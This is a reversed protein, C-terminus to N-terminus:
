EISQRLVVCDRFNGPLYPNFGVAQTRDILFFGRYRINTGDLVGLELGLIDYAGAPNSTALLPNGQQTVEFFGVTIWVAFQHTRVTTLNMVRQLWETRFYPHDRQDPLHPSGSTDTGTDNGGSGLTETVFKTVPTGSSSDVYTVKPATLDINPNALNPAGVMNNISPDGTANNTNTASSAHSPPVQPPTQGPKTGWWDSVQFLRRPPIPAPQPTNQVFLYPNKVGPDWVFPTPPSTVLPLDPFWPLPPNAALAAGTVGTTSASPPLAAPRMVTDNIDPYSLSRFPREAAVATPNGNADPQGNQGTAGIGYAFLYGSGGHRLKLFDSFAAKLQNGWAGNLASTGGPSTFHGLCGTNPLHYSGIPMGQTPEVQTVVAPTGAASVQNQNMSPYFYDGMLGLFVEEDIILNLNLLGPRTDQRLWDYNQGQAVPGIAGFAPSPVEFFDLMKFWGAGGPGGVYNDNNASRFPVLAPPTSASNPVPENQIWGATTSTMGDPAPPTPENSGSYFFADSLYPFPHPAQSALFPVPTVNIVHGSRDHWPGAAAWQTVDFPLPSGTVSLPSGTTSAPNEMIYPTTGGWYIPPPMEGFQKTFLGPSTGPVMLLEAVSTFDRDHFVLWDWIEPASRSRENNTRGLSHEIEATSYVPTTTTNPPTGTTTSANGFKGYLGTGGAPISTQESYGYAPIITATNAAAGTLPPVAHGGRLPQMRELSFLAPEAPSTAMRDPTGVQGLGTSQLFPFRFSDIVIRNANPNAPDFSPDFPNVPRRLYLWYYQNILDTPNSSTPTILEATMDLPTGSDGSATSGTQIPFSTTSWNAATLPTATLSAPPTPPAPLGPLTGPYGSSTGFVYYYNPNSTSPPNGGDANVNTALLAPVLLNPTSPLGAPPPSTTTTATTIKQGTALSYVHINPLNGTINPIQGTVPDPRGYGNDPMIVVDWGSMDLDSTDPSNNLADRTLMNVLEFFFSVAIESTNASPNKTSFSIGMVENIAVPPNEMGYQILYNNPNLDTPTRVESITPDFPVVAATTALALTMPTTNNAPLVVQLDTNVFKTCTADPDRFDIINVVYQSLQALEEPTDVARPPLIAKLMLYTERIWKQRIPEVPSNSVPLPFNLNVKRDRHALSPTSSGLPTM